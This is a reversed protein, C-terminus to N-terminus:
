FCSKQIGKGVFFFQRILRKQVWKSLFNQAYFCSNFTASSDIVNPVSNGGLFVGRWLSPVRVMSRMACTKFHHSVVEFWHLKRRLQVVQYNSGTSQFVWSQVIGSSRFKSPPVVVSSNRCNSYLSFNELDQLPWLFNDRSCFAKWFLLLMQLCDSSQIM